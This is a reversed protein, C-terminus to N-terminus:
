EADFAIMVEEESAGSRVHNKGVNAWGGGSQQIWKTWLRGKKGNYTMATSTYKVCGGENSTVGVQFENQAKSM